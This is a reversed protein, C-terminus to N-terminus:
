LNACTPVLVDVLQWIGLDFFIQSEFRKFNHHTPSHQMAYFHSYPTLPSSRFEQPDRLSVRRFEAGSASM